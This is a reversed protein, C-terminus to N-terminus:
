RTSFPTYAKARASLPVQWFGSALDMKSLFKTDSLSTFIHQPDAIPEADFETIRNIQRCDLCFRHSGDKKKVALLPSCYPSSSREIIGAAEWEQLDKQLQQSLSHPLPYTHRVPKDHILEIDHELASTLGPKDTLLDKYGELLAWLDDRQHSSLDDDVKCDRLNEKAQTPISPDRGDDVQCASDELALATALLTPPGTRFLHGLDEDPPLPAQGDDGSVARLAPAGYHLIPIAAAATVTGSTSPLAPSAQDASSAPLALAPDRHGPGPPLYLKLQNIHYRRDQDGVRIAYHDTDHCQTITYPGKWKLLLKRTDTPLLLLVQDGPCLVRRRAHRDFLRKNKLQVDKVSELALRCSHRLRDRM